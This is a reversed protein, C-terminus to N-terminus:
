LPPPGDDDLPPPGDDDDLPPPLAALAEKIAPVETALLWAPWGKQWVKLPVSSSRVLSAIEDARKSGLREKDRGVEFLASPSSSSSSSSPEKSLLPAIAPEDKAQVWASMGTKWVKHTSSPNAKVKAAV